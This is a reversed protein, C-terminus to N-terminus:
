NEWRFYKGDQYERTFLNHGRKGVFYLYDKPLRYEYIGEQEMLWARLVNRAIAKYEDTAPAHRDYAFQSSATACEIITNGRHGVDVRNLVTWVVAEKQIEPIHEYNAEGHIVKALVIIEEKYNQLEVSANYYIEDRPHIAYATGPLMLLILVVTTILKKIM